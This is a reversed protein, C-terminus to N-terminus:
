PRASATLASLDPATALAVCQGILADARAEGLVPDVLSHFKRALHDDSMPRQLSGIAHEVFVHLTRGDRCTVSVDAAAEDIGDDVRARIRERLAVVDARAVVGDAFETEGAQGFLLGAACAHYVSFKAELGSRPTAKGTLELVLSHVRLDVREIDSAQLGHADRLQVCGDIAPHIVIGCAFPKYTNFSIEFRQGLADTIESWDCKTSFTQALGRPAEIARPSATYGHKALLAATLGARAAAGPHFPKTMSGFQERVGIPQSAAIGLAMSTRHADLGLLRACAAAAGLMGTSGTIHWGRDYHDPYIMNGVRCSVDIGLVVADVFQRGTVGVHEGLAWAASAVPGAPHIITRLHTDDFDFTHSTIGNLLAASGMDVREARGLISAQPSPAFERVAALAAMVTPHRAGGIACGVWNRITRLAEREVGDDWGRSPHGAVFDALIKTIPPAHADATVQTNHAMAIEM